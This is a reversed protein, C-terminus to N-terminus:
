VSAPEECVSVTFARVDWLRSCLISNANDCILSIFPPESLVVNVTPASPSSRIPPLVTLVTSIPCFRDNAAGPSLTVPPKYAPTPKSTRKLSRMPANTDVSPVTIDSLLVSPVAM